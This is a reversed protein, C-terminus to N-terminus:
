ESQTWFLVSSVHEVLLHNVTYYNIMAIGTTMENAFPDTRDYSGSEDDGKNYTVSFVNSLIKGFDNEPLQMRFCSM